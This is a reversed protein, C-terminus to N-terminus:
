EENRLGLQKQMGGLSRKLFINHQRELKWFTQWHMGKPKDGPTNLIGAEWGLRKRIKNARRIVLDSDGERQCRYDLRCCYRCAFVAKSYYLIDVRRGCGEAPCLFLARHGGFNNYPIWDLGVPYREEKWDDEGIKHRYSLIFKDAKTHVAISAVIVDRLKWQWSFTRHGTKLLGERQIHRIDLRLYNDTTGRSSCQRRGSGFRGV